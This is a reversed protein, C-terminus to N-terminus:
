IKLRSASSQAQEPVKRKSPSSQPTKLAHDSRSVPMDERRLLGLIVLELIREKPITRIHIQDSSLRDYTMNFQARVIANAPVMDSTIPHGEITDIMTQRGNQHVVAYIKMPTHVYHWNTSNDAKSTALRDRMTQPLKAAAAVLQADNWAANGSTEPHVFHPQILRRRALTLSGNYRQLNSM